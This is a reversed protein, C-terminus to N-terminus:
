LSIDSLLMSTCIFIEVLLLILGDSPVPFEIWISVQFGVKFVVRQEKGKISTTTFIVSKDKGSLTVAAQIKKDMSLVRWLDFPMKSSSGKLRVTAVFVYSLPLGEPFIERLSFFVNLYNSILYICFLSGFSETARKLCYEVQDEWYHRHLCDSRLRDRVDSLWPDEKSKHSREHGVDTRLREWWSIGSPDTNSVCVSSLLPTM